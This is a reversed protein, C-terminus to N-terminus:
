REKAENIKKKPKQIKPTEERRRGIVGYYNRREKRKRFSLIVHCEFLRMVGQYGTQEL